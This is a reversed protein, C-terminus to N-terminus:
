IRICGVFLRESTNLRSAEQCTKLTVKEDTSSHHTEPGCSGTLVCLEHGRCDKKVRGSWNKVCLQSKARNKKQKKLLTAECQSGTSYFHM